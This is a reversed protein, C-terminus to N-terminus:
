PLIRKRYDASWKKTHPSGTPCYCTIMFALIPLRVRAAGLPSPFALIVHEPIGAIECYILCSPGRPDDPYEEIIEANASLIAQWIAQLTVGDAHAEQRAHNGAQYHGDRIAQQIEALQM